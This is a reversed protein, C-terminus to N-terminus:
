KPFDNQCTVKRIPFTVKKIQFTVQSLLKGFFKEHTVHGKIMAKVTNIKNTKPGFSNCSTFNLTNSSKRYWSTIIRNNHKCITVDLFNLKEQIENEMTFKLYPDISNLYKIFNTESINAPIIM